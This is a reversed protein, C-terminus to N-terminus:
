DRLTVVTAGNGGENPAGPRSAVVAPHKRLRERLADRLRGSGHGHVIRVEGRGSLMAQDLFADMEALAPEVRQGILHLEPAVPARDVDDREGGRSVRGKAPPEAAAEVILDGTQLRLRKGNALVEVKDGSLREVIGRWGLTGHRVQAGVVLPLDPAPAEGFDVQPAEAFLRAAAQQAVSKKRGAALEARIRDATASLERTVRERFEALERKVRAGLTRREAELAARERELREAALEAGAREVRTAEAAVALRERTAELEALLRRLDRHEDGLLAEARAIWEVPLDMRRALALAESGGPSGPLLRFTPRGTSPEFEMAACTAGPLELAAAALGTLHTTILALGGREVLTELLAVALATGEEPDTGSGLEDLLALSQPGAARYAEALRALRGSFTSRDALLDQEDGVTAVLSTLHPMESTAAAPIPLGAQAALALLGLTKLAVTKGGANPGTIVLARREPTLEVDLPEVVSEHGRAGLVRERRRALRPDLLPHRAGVLRMRGPPALVPLHADIERALRHAAELADLEGILGAMQRVLPSEAALDRLLEHLLRQREGELEDVAGQLTNNEEVVELPEFYLSKGTASRGHVLGALKGRNGAQVMLMLRGGRMPITEEGILERHAGGIAELRGYLRERAGQVQRRLAALQPSADDRVEGKRDLIRGIRRVLPQPDALDAVASALETCPPDMRAIRAAAEGGAALLGALRLIEGGALPPDGSALRDVLEALGEGLGPVLPAEVTLRESEAYRARRRALEALEAAPELSRLVAAGLDTRAESAFLALLADFELAIRTAPAAIPLQSPHASVASTQSPTM